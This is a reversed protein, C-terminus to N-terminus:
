SAQTPQEAGAPAESSEVKKASSRTSASGRGKRASPARRGGRAGRGAARGGGKSRGGGAGKAFYTTARKQGSKHLSGTDLAEKLPRPLEKAELGLEDRIQEARLGSPHRKLLSVIREVVKEIDGASRRPLRGRRRSAGASPAARVTAGAPSKSGRGSSEALLQDLSVRRIVDLVSSAFSSALGNLRDRLANPMFLWM